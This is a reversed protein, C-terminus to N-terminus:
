SCKVTVYIIYFYSGVERMHFYRVTAAGIANSKRTIKISGGFNGANVLNKGSTIELNTWWGLFFTLIKFSGKKLYEM